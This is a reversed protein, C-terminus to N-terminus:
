EILLDVEFVFEIVIEVWYNDGVNESNFSVIFLM